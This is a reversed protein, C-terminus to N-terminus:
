EADLKKAVATGQEGVKEIVGTAQDVAKVLIEMVSM